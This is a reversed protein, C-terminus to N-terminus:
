AAAAKERRRRDSERAAQMGCRNSCYRSGTYKPQFVTACVGCPRPLDAWDMPVPDEVLERVGLADRVVDPDIGLADCISVFAMVGDDDRLMWAAADSLAQAPNSNPEDGLNRVDDIARQLVALQLLREPARYNTRVTSLYRGLDAPDAVWRPDHDAAPQATHIAWPTDGSYRAKM